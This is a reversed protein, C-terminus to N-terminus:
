TARQSRSPSSRRPSRGWPGSRRSRGPARLLLVVSTPVARRDPPGNYNLAPELACGRCGARCPPATPRTTPASASAAAGAGRRAPLLRRQDRVRDRVVGAGGALRVAAGRRAARVARRQDDPQARPSVPGRVVLRTPRTGPRSRGRARGGRVARGDPRHARPRAGAGGGGLVILPWSALADGALILAPIVGAVVGPAPRDRAPSPPRAHRGIM